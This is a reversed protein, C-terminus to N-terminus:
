MSLCIALISPICVFYSNMYATSVGHIGLTFDYDSVAIGETVVDYLSPSTMTLGYTGICVARDRIWDHLSNQKISGVVPAVLAILMNERNNRFRDSALIQETLALTYSLVWKWNRITDEFGMSRASDDTSLLISPTRATVLVLAMANLLVLIREKRTHCQHMLMHPAMVGINLQLTSSITKKLANQDVNGDLLGLTYLLLLLGSLDLLVYKVIFIGDLHDYSAGEVMDKINHLLPHILAVLCARDKYM